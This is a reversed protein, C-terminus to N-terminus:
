FSGIVSDTNLGFSICDIRSLVGKEGWVGVVQDERSDTETRIKDKPFFITPFFPVLM